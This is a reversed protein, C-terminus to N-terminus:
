RKPPTRHAEATAPIEALWRAAARGSRLRVVAVGSAALETLRAPLERNHRRQSTVAWALLSNRGFLASWREVNGNFLETRRVIRTVTRVVIRKLVVPLRLDLWVVLDAQPWLATSIRDIYNGDFVWCSGAAIKAVKATFQEAPLQTWNPGHNLGDLDVHEAGIRAALGDALTSKGSGTTGLVVVKRFSTDDRESPRGGHSIHSV